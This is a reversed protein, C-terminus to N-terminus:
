PFITFAKRFGAFHPMGVITHGKSRYRGKTQALPRMDASSRYLDDFQYKWALNSKAGGEDLTARSEIGRLIVKKGNISIGPTAKIFPSIPRIRNQSRRYIESTVRGDIDSLFPVGKYYTKKEDAM